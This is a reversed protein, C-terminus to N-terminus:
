MIKGNFRETQERTHMNQCTIIDNDVAQFVLEMILFDKLGSSLSNLDREPCERKEKVGSSIKKIVM